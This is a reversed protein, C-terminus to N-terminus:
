IYSWKQLLDIFDLFLGSWHDRKLTLYIIVLWLISGTRKWRTQPSSSDHWILCGGVKRHLWCTLIMFCLNRRSPGYGLWTTVSFTPWIPLFRFLNVPTYRIRPPTLGSYLNNPIKLEPCTYVVDRNANPNWFM